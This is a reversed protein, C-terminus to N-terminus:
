SNPLLEYIITVTASVQVDGPKVPVESRASIAGSEDKFYPIPPEPPYSYVGGENITIIQGLTLGAAAAIVQAKSKAKIVAEALAQNEVESLQSKEFRIYNVSNAGAEVAADLIAGLNPLDKVTVTIENRVRYGIIEPSADEKIRGYNYEPWINYSSTQICDDTINKAKLAAFVKETAVNNMNQAKGLEKDFSEVALSTRAQDPAIKINGTASVTLKIRTDRNADTTAQGPQIGYFLGSIVFIGLFLAVLLIRNWNKWAIM